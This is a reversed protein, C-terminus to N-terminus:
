FTASEFFYGMENAARAATEDIIMYGRANVYSAYETGAILDVQVTDGSDVPETAQTSRELNGTRNQYTHGRREDSAAQRAIRYMERPVERELHRVAAQEATIVESIDVRM